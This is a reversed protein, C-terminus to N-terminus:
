FEELLSFHYKGEKIWCNTLAVIATNIFERIKDLGDGNNYKLEVIDGPFHILNRQKRFNDMIQLVGNDDIQLCDKYKDKNLIKDFNISKDSLGRLRNVKGDFRYGEIEFYEKALIPQNEQRTRM